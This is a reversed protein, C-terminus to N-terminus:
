RARRLEPSAIKKPVRRYWVLALAAYLPREHTLAMAEAERREYGSSAAVIPGVAAPDWNGRYDPDFMLLELARVEIMQIPRRTKLLSLATRLAGPGHSRYFDIVTGVAVTDGPKYLDKRPPPSRPVRVGTEDMVKQIAIIEPDGAVLASHFLQPKTVATRDTNIAIFSEAQRAVSRPRSVLVPILEVAPHTAAITASHQGNTIVLGHPTEIVNPAQFKSWDFRGLIRRILATGEKGIRRQYTDDVWLTAPDVWRLEPPDGVDENFRVGHLSAPALSAIPRLGSV